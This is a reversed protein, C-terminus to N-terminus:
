QGLAGKRIEDVLEIYYKDPSVKMQKVVERYLRLQYIPFVEKQRGGFTAMPAYHKLAQGLLASNCISLDFIGDYDCIANAFDPISRLGDAFEICDGARLAQGLEIELNGRNVWHAGIKRNQREEDLFANLADALIHRAADADGNQIKNDIDDWKFSLAEYCRTFIKTKSSKLCELISILDLIDEAVVPAFIWHAVIIVVRPVRGTLAGSMLRLFTDFKAERIVTVGADQAVDAVDCALSCVDQYSLKFVDKAGFFSGATHRGFDRNPDNINEFFSKESLPITLILACNYPESTITNIM